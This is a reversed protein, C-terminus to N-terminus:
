LGSGISDLTHAAFDAIVSGEDAWTSPPGTLFTSPLGPQFLTSYYCETGDLTAAIVSGTTPDVMFNYLQTPNLPHLLTAADQLDFSSVSDGLGTAPEITSQRSEYSCRDSSSDDSTSKLAANVEPRLGGVGEAHVPSARGAAHRGELEHLMTEIQATEFHYLSDILHRKRPSAKRKAVRGPDTPWGTPNIRQGTLTAKGNTLSCRIKKSRCRECAGGAGTGGCARYAKRCATCTGTAHGGPNSSNVSELSKVVPNM